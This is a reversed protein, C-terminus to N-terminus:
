TVPNGWAGGAGAYRAFALHKMDLSFSPDVDDYENPPLTIRRKEGTEVSLLFLGMVGGYSPGDSVVLWKSDPSWAIFRSRPYVTLPATVSALSRATGAAVSPILLVEANDNSNLRLFAIMRGDPSWTPSVDQKPDSTLRLLAGDGIQKVYIDFNDQKQGNWAFAVREGDPSFSPCIESGVYNTLPESSYYNPSQSHNPVYFVYAALCILPVTLFWRFRV